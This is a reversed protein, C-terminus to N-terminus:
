QPPARWKWSDDPQRCITVKYNFSEARVINLVHQLKRCERGEVSFRKLLTVSGSNGSKPNDWELTTGKPKDGMEVRATEKIIEIDEATLEPFVDVWRANTSGLPLLFTCVAFVGFVYRSLIKNEKLM